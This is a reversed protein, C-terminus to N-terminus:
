VLSMSDLLAQRGADTAVTIGVGDDLRRCLVLCDSVAVAGDRTYTSVACLDLELREPGTM